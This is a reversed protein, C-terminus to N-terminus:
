RDLNTRELPAATARGHLILYPQPTPAEQARTEQAPTETLAVPQPRELLLWRVAISILGSCAMWVYGIAFPLLQRAWEGEASESVMYVVIPNRDTIFTLLILNIVPICMGSTTCGIAFARGYGRGYVIWPIFIAPLLATIVWLVIASIEVPLGFFIGCILAAALVVLMLTKLSFQM